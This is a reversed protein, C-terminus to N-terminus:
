NDSDDDAKDDDEEDETSRKLFKYTAAQEATIKAGFLEAAFALVPDHGGQVAARNPGVLHDPIVGVKELRNGDSMILDGITVSLGFFSLTEYGPVGRSNVMGASISTMVAGATADGVVKGRKELQIVRSFVESASGSHSDTLVILEGNFANRKQPKAIRDSSKRRTVWTGVKVDRDFFHGVLHQHMKVYGGGNGRLDLILKKASTAEEMMRDIFRREVVFTELRCAMVEANIRVCKYPDERKAKRRKEAEKRREETSKFSAEIVVTKESGDNQLLHIAVQERPDLTRYVYNMMWNKDRSVNFDDIGVVIDGVKLGKKEADSGKLVDVIYCTQGVFQTAFGYYVRNARGPPLFYTHSDELELVVAAIVRFIESNTDMQKIKEEAVKFRADIDIGRFNKDFYYQKIVKKVESLM